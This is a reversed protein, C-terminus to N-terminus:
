VSVTVALPLPPPTVLLVVVVTVVAHNLRAPWSLAEEPLVAGVALHALAFRERGTGNFLPWCAPITAWIAV